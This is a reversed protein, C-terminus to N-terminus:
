DISASWRDWEALRRRDQKTPRGQEITSAPEPALRRAEAARERAAISEPTENYLTQAVPAPGRTPSLEVVQVERDVQGQRFRVLDGARVDRSAKAAQGNVTVRGKGIEEVAISRTKYFRAAWLWKDLRM